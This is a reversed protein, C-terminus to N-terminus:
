VFECSFLQRPFLLLSYTLIFFVHVAGGNGSLLTYLMLSCINYTFSAWLNLVNASNCRSSRGQTKQLPKFRTQNSKEDCKRRHFSAKYSRADNSVGIEKWFCCCCSWVNIRWWCDHQGEIAANILLWFVQTKVNIWQGACIPSFPLSARKWRETSFLFLMHRLDAHIQTCFLYKSLITFILLCTVSKCFYSKWRLCINTKFHFMAFDMTESQFTSLPILLSCAFVRSERKRTSYPIRHTLGRQHCTKVARLCTIM